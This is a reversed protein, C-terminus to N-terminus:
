KLEGKIYILVDDILVLHENHSLQEYKDPTFIIDNLYRDRLGMYGLHGNLGVKHIEFLKSGLKFCKNILTKNSVIKEIKKIQIPNKM